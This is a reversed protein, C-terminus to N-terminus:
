RLRLNELQSEELITAEGFGMLGYMHVAAQEETHINVGM